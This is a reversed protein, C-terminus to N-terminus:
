RNYVDKAVRWGDFINHFRVWGDHLTIVGPPRQSAYGKWGGLRAIIWAAWALNTRDYPNKQKETKGEFRPLLDEMCQLQQRGFVLSPKQGTEGTRAQRLQLIVKAAMLSMVFLKRLSKGSELEPCEYNIGKTKVTRFLDEIIWRATYYDVILRAQVADNVAHTTYLTWEIPKEGKPVTEERERVQVVYLPLSSPYKERDVICKPRSLLAEAYRVEMQARRKKRGKNDGNVELVCTQVPSLNKIDAQLRGQASVTKRDHHCRIVFDLGAQQLLHFSEYIDGERDQVVTIRQVDSLHKKAEIARESWRFSEKEELPHSKYQREHKNERDEPRHWLHIDIAGILSRDEPNIVVTPHCFFGLDKDNGTVGLGTTDTIRARHNELNLETTDKLLLVHPLGACHKVCHAQAGVILASESVKENRWFRYFSIQDKWHDTKQMVVRSKEVM